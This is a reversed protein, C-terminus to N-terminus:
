EECKGEGVAEHSAPGYRGQQHRFLLQLNYSVMGAMHWGTVDNKLNDGARGESRKLQVMYKVKGIWVYFLTPM